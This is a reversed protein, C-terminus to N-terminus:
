TGFQNIQDLMLARADEGAQWRRYWAITQDLAQEVDWRPRWGLKAIAQASDLRLMHAEHPQPTGDHVWGAGAGWGAVLRDAVWRVPKSDRDAPGFNWARAFERGEIALRECLRLYGALPDLVHQWPRVADPYRLVAKEGALFARILDPVLRDTAWDGGGIVNGARASAIAPGSDPFFSDRWAATVIEAAGKSASYPDHGGLPDDERYPEPGEHNRYCKDSTVILAARLGTGHRIAELVQATGMVNTAFTGIPDQYSERVLAQAAMHIVIEPRAKAFAAELAAPDRVDGLISDITGGVGALDFLNPKTAPALAYGTVKAGLRALWVALWAGKFGTHGTLLVRRDTWFAANTM